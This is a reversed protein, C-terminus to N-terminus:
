ARKDCDVDIKLLLRNLIRGDAHFAKAPSRHVLPRGGEYASGKIFLIDGVDVHEVAGADRLIHDDAPPSRCSRALM